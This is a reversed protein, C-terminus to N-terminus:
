AGATGPKPLSTDNSDHNEPMKCVEDAKKGCFSCDGTENKLFPSKSACTGRFEEGKIWFRINIAFFAIFIIGGVIAFTYLFQM